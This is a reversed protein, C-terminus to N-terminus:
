VWGDVIPWGSGSGFGGPLKDPAVKRLEAITTAGVKAALAVGSQEAEALTRM